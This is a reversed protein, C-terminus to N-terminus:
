PIGLLPRAAVDAPYFVFVCGKSFESCSLVGRRVVRAESDDPFPFSSKPASLAASASKLEQAGSLFKTDVVGPDKALAIVFEASKYGGGWDHIQPVKFTREDSLEAGADKIASTIAAGGSLAAVSSKLRDRLQPDGNRGFKRRESRIKAPLPTQLRLRMPPISTGSTKQCRAFRNAVKRHMRGCNKPQNSYAPNEALHSYVEEFNKGRWNIEAKELIPAIPVIEEFDAMLPLRRRERDGQPFAARSAGAGLVVLHPRVDRYNEIEEAATIM